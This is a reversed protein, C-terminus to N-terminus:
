INTKRFLFSPVMRIIFAVLAWRRPVFGSSPGAQALALSQKACVAPPIPSLGPPAGDLDKTMVTDVFGPKITVVNVGYRHVRNRLGELYTSFASKSACYGPNARRGREGAISSIGMLTGRRRAEMYAAAPNMWAMAGLVNVEMMQRDKQFDYEHEDISPMVGASYVLLDVAGMEEILQDFLPANKQWETVDHAHVIAHGGASVIDSKVRELEERRRAVLAVRTGRRALEKAIAEGIGSSAGVVIACEFFPKGM